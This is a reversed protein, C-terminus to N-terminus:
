YDVKAIRNMMLYGLMVSVGSGLLMLQGLPSVLLPRMFEPSLVSLAAFVVVPLIALLKASLRAEATLTEQQDRMAVRQRMLDAINQLVEGLSGGTERQILVATVFMKLDTSDIRDQLAILAVRVEVGLRQEDYFRGFEPGLPQGVEDAVFKRAAQFSYGAKMASVLMDISDPLQSEFASLRKHQARVIWAVPILAGFVTGIPPGFLPNVRIALAMGIAASVLVVLIFQGVKMSSGALRLRRGVEEAIPRGTLLRNFIDVDSFSEDRLISRARITVEDLGSLRARAAEADALSRRNFFAYAGMLLMLTSVFVMVLILFQM